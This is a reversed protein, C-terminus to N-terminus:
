SKRFEATGFQLKGQETTIDPLGAVLYYYNQRIM